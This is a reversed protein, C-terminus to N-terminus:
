DQICRVSILRSEGGASWYAVEYELDMSSSHAKFSSGGESSSFWYGYYGNGEFSDDSRGSYLSYGGPVASFGYADKGNGNGWGDRAKLKDGAGNGSGLGDRTELKNGVGVFNVLQWWEADSPLHWGKPCSKKADNWDYLRGYKECNKSDNGYCKSSSFLSKYNLNEAMWTQKGIKVTKYTKKDRSDTFNGKSAEIKAKAEAEAKAKAEAEAKAKAEAKAEAEAKAKVEEASDDKLCRVSNLVGPIELDIVVESNDYGMSVTYANAIGAVGTGATGTWWHGYYGAHTFGGGGYGGPLASFGFDDTNIPRGRNDVPWGDKAGLKKVAVKNGGAFNVLTQWEKDSPLHWGAPCSKIAEKWDYLRGYKNCNEPKRIKSQPEDGYCLGLYGDAGHHDLNQAMWVQEGIKVTRYKKGDRSDTFTGQAFVAVGLLALLTIVKKM